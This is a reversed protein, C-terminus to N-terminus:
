PLRPIALTIPESAAIFLGGKTLDYPTLEVRVKDGTLVRIKHLMMRGALVARIVAGNALEVSACNRHIGVVTGDMTVTTEKM